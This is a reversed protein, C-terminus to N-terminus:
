RRPLWAPSFKDGDGSTRRAIGSGDSRVTYIQFVNVGTGWTQHTSAFAVLRGDPSWAPSYQIGAGIFLPRLNAGDDDILMIGTGPWGTIRQFALTRGEPSWSPADDSLGAGGTVARRDTGDPRVTWIHNNGNTFHLDQVFAIRESGDERRPRGPRAGNGALCEGRSAQRAPATRM